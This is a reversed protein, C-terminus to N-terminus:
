ELIEPPGQIETQLDDVMERVHNYKPKPIM